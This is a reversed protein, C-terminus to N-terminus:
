SGEEDRWWWIHPSLLVDKVPERSEYEDDERWPVSRWPLDGTREIVVAGQDGIFSTIRAPQDRYYVPRGILADQKGQVYDLLPALNLLEQVDHHLRLLMPGIDRYSLEWVPIRNFSVIARSHKRVEDRGKWDNVTRENWQQIDVDVCIRHGNFWSWHPGGDETTDGYDVWPWGDPDRNLEDPLGYAVSRTVDVRGLGAMHEQVLVQMYADDPTIPELEPGAGGKYTRKQPVYHNTRDSM